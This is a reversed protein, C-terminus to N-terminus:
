LHQKSYAFIEDLNEMASLLGEKFGMKLIGDLQEANEFTITFDVLTHNGDPSFSVEWRSQPMESNFTGDEDTFANTISFSKPEEIKVFNAVSWHKEGNPGVMAYLWRGGQSFEMSKTEAKWPKPAWWRDLMENNTYAEWVWPLQADYERQVTITKQDRDVTFGTKLKTEM